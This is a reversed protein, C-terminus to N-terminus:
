GGTSVTPCLWAIVKSHSSEIKDKEVKHLAAAVMRQSRTVSITIFLKVFWDLFKVVEIFVTEFLMQLFIKLFSFALLELCEFLSDVIHNYCKVTYSNDRPALHM